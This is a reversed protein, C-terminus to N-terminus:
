NEWKALNYPCLITDYRELPLVATLLNFLKCEHCTDSTDACQTCKMQAADVLTRFDEKEVTVTTKSPTMKPVLRMEYDMATNNLNNRQKQPITKRIENLFKLSGDAIGNLLDVGGDIMGARDALDDKAEQFCSVLNM